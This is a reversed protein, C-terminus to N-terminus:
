CEGYEQQRAASWALFARALRNWDDSGEAPVGGLCRQCYDEFRARDRNIRGYEETSLGM